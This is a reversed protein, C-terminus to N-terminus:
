QFPTDRVDPAPPPTEWSFRVEVTIPKPVTLYTEVAVRVSAISVAMVEVVWANISPITASTSPNPSRPYTDDEWSAEVVNPNCVAPNIEAGLKNFRTEVDKKSVEKTEVVKASLVAPNTDAGLKNVKTEVGKRLVERLEVVCNKWVAPNTEAGLRRLKTLVANKFVERLEVVCNKWVAPNTEAGLKNVKTEVPKRLVEKAEM